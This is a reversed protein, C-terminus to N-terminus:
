FEALVKDLAALEVPKTMYANFGSEMYRDIESKLAYATLAIIPVNRDVGEPPDNRIIRTAEDGSMGPMRIDMLVLDFREHALKELAEQGSGALVTAHGRSELLEKIFVRNVQNDEAVLIRLSRRAPGAKVADEEMVAQATELRLTFTFASGEGERSQVQIAGGMLEVLQRSITLGLGTGGYVNLGQSHAQEFSDFIHPLRHAPIGIGTDTVTFRFLQPRGASEAGGERSVHIGIRGKRTFKLANGVLNTLIQRLRGADGVLSDPLDPDVAQELVLGKEAAAVQLPEVAAEIERRLSFLDHALRVKGAEMKSLDLVDNVIGLLHMASKDALDLYELLAADTARLRALHIMGMVGNMPTRIEHSMNALFESKARNAQEAEERAQRAEAELVKRRTVDRAVALVTGVGGDAQAEAAFRIEYTRTGQHGEIRGEVVRDEGTAFVQALAEEAQALDEGSMGLCKLRRGVLGEPRLGTAAEVEPNAYLLCLSRDFRVIIDPAHEVLAKFEQERRHLAQELRKREIAYRISRALLHVDIHGKVLYDQGGARLVQVAVEQDSLGTLVIIPLDPRRSQLAHFTGLGTSDPLGLDLLIADVQHDDLYAYGDALRSVVHLEFGSDLAGALMRRLLRVDGPNDEILLLQIPTEKM